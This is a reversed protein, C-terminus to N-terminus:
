PSDEVGADYARTPPSRGHLEVARHTWILEMLTCNVIMEPLFGM